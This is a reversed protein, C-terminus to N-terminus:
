NRGDIAELIYNALAEIQEDTAAHMGRAIYRLEAVTIIVPECQADYSVLAPQLENVNRM